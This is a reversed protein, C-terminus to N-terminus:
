IAAVFTIFTPVVFLLHIGCLESALLLFILLVLSHGIIKKEVELIGM